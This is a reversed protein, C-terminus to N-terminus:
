YDRHPGARKIAKLLAGDSHFLERENSMIYQKVFAFFPGGSTTTARKGTRREYNNALLLILRRREWMAPRGGAHRETPISRREAPRWPRLAALM